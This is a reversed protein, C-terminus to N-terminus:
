LFSGEPLYVKWAAQMIQYHVILRGNMIPKNERISCNARVSRSYWFWMIRDKRCVFKWFSGRHLYWIQFHCWRQSLNYACFPQWRQKLVGDRVHMIKCGAHTLKKINIQVRWCTFYTEQLTTEAYEQSWRRRRRGDVAFMPYILNRCIGM